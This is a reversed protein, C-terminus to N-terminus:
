SCFIGGAAIVLGAVAIGAGVPGGCAFGVIGAYLGAVALNFGCNVQILIGGNHRTNVQASISNLASVIQADYASLGSTQVASLFEERESLTPTTMSQVYASYTTVVGSSQLSAYGAQLQATTLTTSTFLDSNDLIWTEITKTFGTEDQNGFYSQLATAAASYTSATAKNAAVASNLAIMKTQMTQVVSISLSSPIAPGAVGLGTPHSAGGGPSPAPQVQTTASRGEQQAQLAPVFLLGAALIVALFQRIAGKM